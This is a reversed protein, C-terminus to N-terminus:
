LGERPNQVVGVPRPAPPATPSPIAAIFLVGLILSLPWVLDLITALAIAQLDTLHFVGALGICLPLWFGAMAILTWKLMFQREGRKQEKGRALLERAHEIESQLEPSLGRHYAIVRDLIESSSMKHGTGAWMWGVRYMASADTRVQKIKEATFPPHAYFGPYDEPIISSRLYVVDGSIRHRYARAMLGYVGIGLCGLITMAILFLPM